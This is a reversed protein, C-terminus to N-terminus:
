KTHFEPKLERTMLDKIAKKPDKNRYIILYVQETIPMEINLKQSLKYVSLTTKIGEAVQKQKELEKLKTGKGIRFGATYNRSMTSNCTLVLDGIGSLGLFTINKAGLKLALKRIEHLGRTILTAKANNGLNLADCIGAAIAIINKTAGSIEVGVTDSNEYVRFYDTSLLKQLFHRKKRDKGAITTATPKKRAVEYAFNPGSVVYAPKKFLDYLIETPRELTNLEIGKSLSLIITKKPLKNKIPSLTQRIYQTPIANIFVDCNLTEYLDGTSKLNESLKINKLYIKNEHYKNIINVLDKEKAWLTVPYGKEALLNAVTTGWAGAGAVSIKIKRDM